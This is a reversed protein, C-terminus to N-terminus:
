VNKWSEVSFHIEIFSPLFNKPISIKETSMKKCFIQNVKQSVQGWKKAIWHYFLGWFCWRRCKGYFLRKKWGSILSLNSFQQQQKPPRNFYDEAFLKSRVWELDIVNVWSINKTDFRKNLKLKNCNQFHLIFHYM